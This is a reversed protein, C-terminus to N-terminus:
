EKQINRFPDKAAVGAFAKLQCGMGTPFTEPEATGEGPHQTPCPCPRAALPTGHPPRLRSSSRHHAREELLLWRGVRLLEDATSSGGGLGVTHRLFLRARYLTPHTGATKALESNTFGALGALGSLAKGQPV